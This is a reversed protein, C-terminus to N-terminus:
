LLKAKHYARLLDTSPEIGMEKSLAKELDQFRRLAQEPRGLSLCSEMYLLHSPQNCNDYECVQGSLEMAEQHLEAGAALGAATMLGEIVELELSDRARIAWDLYCGDLYPGRYLDVVQRGRVVARDAQSEDKLDRLLKKLESVDHWHEREPNLGIGTLERQIYDTPGEWGEPKLIRRYLSVANYLGRKGTEHSEPWFIDILVEDSAPAERAALLALLYRNKNGKWQKGAIALEGVFVEFAGLSYIRLVPLQGEGGVSLGANAAKRVAAEPDDKLLEVLRPPWGQPSLCGAVAARQRPDLAGEELAQIIAGPHGLFYRAAQARELYGEALGQAVLPLMWGAAAETRPGLVNKLEQSPFPEPPQWLALRAVEGESREALGALAQQLLDRAREPQGDRLRLGVELCCRAYVLPGARRACELARALLKEAEEGRRCRSWGLYATVAEPGEPQRGVIEAFAAAAGSSEGIQLLTQALGLLKRRSRWAQRGEPPSLRQLSEVLYPDCQGVGPQGSARALALSVVRADLPIAEGQIARPGTGDWREQLNAAAEALAPPPSLGAGAASALLQARACRLPDWGLHGTLAEAVEVAQELQAKGSLKSIARASWRLSEALEEYVEEQSRRRGQGRVVGEVCDLLERLKFPKRLYGRVGLRAARVAAEEEAFGTMVICALDQQHDRMRALAELGDIGKMRIDVIVLDYSIEAIRAVAETGGAVPTVHYGAEVLEETVAERFALDDELLLINFTDM